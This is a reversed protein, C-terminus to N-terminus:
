DWDEENALRSSRKDRRDVTDKEIKSMKGKNMAFKQDHHHEMWQVLEKIRALGPYEAINQPTLAAFEVPIKLEYVSQRIDYVNFTARDALRTLQIDRDITIQIDISKAPDAIHAIKISYSVREYDTKAFLDKVMRSPNKYLIDFYQMALEVVEPNKNNLALLNMRIGEAFDFFRSSAFYSLDKDYFLVRM